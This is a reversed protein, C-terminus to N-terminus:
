GGPFPEFPKSKRFVVQGKLRQHNIKARERGEFTRYLEPERYMDCGACTKNLCNTGFSSRIDKIKQSKWIDLLSSELINGIGLDNVADMAAVCSCAMVTGDPLVIPGNFTNVCPENRNKVVRLKMIEPLMERTIRGNASTFSWTFDIQPNYALIPQFDKDKLVEELSRDSRLGITINLPDKKKSNCEVLELVNKRMREYSSSRYVREYMEEEFGATSIVISTLGSNLVEEIGFKDLLIGNTTLNIRDIQYQARLFKVRELFKPDILADGVIPTLGVTGGGISCFDSVSKYFVDDTMFEVKRTQFQYPCFICKANCLNTFELHLEYPRLSMEELTKELSFFSGVFADAKRKLIRYVKNIFVLNM